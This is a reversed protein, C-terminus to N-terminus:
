NLGSIRRQVETEVDLPKKGARVRRRNGAVVMDRVEDRLGPDAAPQALRALEADVDVPTEGRRERLANRAALM